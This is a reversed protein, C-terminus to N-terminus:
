TDGCLITVCIPSTLSLPSNLTNKANKSNETSIQSHQQITHYSTPHYQEWYSNHLYRCMFFYVCIPSTVSLPSNPTNKANKPKETSIQSHQQITHYCSPHYQNFPLDGLTNLPDSLTKPPGISHDLTTLRPDAQGRSLLKQGDSHRTGLLAM